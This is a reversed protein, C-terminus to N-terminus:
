QEAVNSPENNQAGKRENGKDNEDHNEEKKYLNCQIGRDRSICWFQKTCEACVGVGYWRNIKHETPTIMPGNM